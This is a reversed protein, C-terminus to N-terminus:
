LHSLGTSSPGPCLDEGASPFSTGADVASVDRYLGDTSRCGSGEEALPKEPAPTLPLRRRLAWRTGAAYSSRAESNGQQRLPCVYRKGRPVDLYQREKNTGVPASISSSVCRGGHQELLHQRTAGLPPPSRSQTKRQYIFTLTLQLSSRCPPLFGSKRHLPQTKPPIAPGERASSFFQKQYAGEELKQPSESCLGCPIFGHQFYAM